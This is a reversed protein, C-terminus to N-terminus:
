VAQRRTSCDVCRRSLAQRAANVPKGRSVFSRVLEQLRHCVSSTQGAYGGLCRASRITCSDTGASVVNGVRRIGFGRVHSPSRCGVLEASDSEEQFIAMGTFVVSCKKRGVIVSRHCWLHVWGTLWCCWWQEVVRGCAVAVDHKTCANMQYQSSPRCAPTSQSGGHEVCLGTGCNATASDTAISVSSLVCDPRTQGASLSISGSFGRFAHIEAKDVPDDRMKKRAPSMLVKTIKVAFETQSIMIENTDINQVYKSVFCAKGSKGSESRFITGCPQRHKLFCLVPDM